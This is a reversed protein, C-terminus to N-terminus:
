RWSAAEPRRFRPHLTERDLGLGAAIGILTDRSFSRSKLLEEHYEWFKGQRQAAKAAAAADYANKHMVLPNHHLEVRLTGNFNELWNISSERPARASRASTIPSSTLTNKAGASRAVPIGHPSLPAGGPARPHRCGRDPRNGFVREPVDPGDAAGV